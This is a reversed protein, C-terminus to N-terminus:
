KWWEEWPYVILCNEDLNNIEVASYDISLESESGINDHLVAIRVNQNWITKWPETKSPHFDEWDQKIWNLTAGTHNIGDVILINKGTYADEAMSLNSVTDGDDQLSVKLTDLPIEFYQSILNAPMLGGRNLGVVYDPRWDSLTIQRCLEATQKQVDRWTLFVKKM